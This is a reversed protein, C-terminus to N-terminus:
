RSSLPFYDVLENNLNAYALIQGRCPRVEFNISNTIVMSSPQHWLLLIVGPWSGCRFATLYWSLNVIMAATIAALECDSHHLKRTSPSRRATNTNWIHRITSAAHGRRGGHFVAFIHFRGHALVIQPGSSKVLSLSYTIGFRAKPFNPGCIPCLQHLAVTGDLACSRGLHLRESRFPHLALNEWGSCVFPRSTIKTLSIPRPSPAVSNYLVRFEWLSDFSIECFAVLLWKFLFTSFIQLVSVQSCPSYPEYNGLCGDFQLAAKRTLVVVELKTMRPNLNPPINSPSQHLPCNAIQRM